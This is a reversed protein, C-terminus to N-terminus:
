KTEISEIDIIGPDMNDSDWEIKEPENSAIEDAIIRADDISDAEIEMTGYETWTQTYTVKFQM